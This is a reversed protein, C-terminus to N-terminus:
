KGGFIIFPKNIPSSCSAEGGGGSITVRYSNNNSPMVEPLLVHLFCMNVQLVYTFMYLAIRVTRYPGMDCQLDGYM